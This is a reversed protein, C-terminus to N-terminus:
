HDTDHYPYDTNNMKRKMNVAAALMYCGFIAGYEFYLFWLNVMLYLGEKEANKHLSLPATITKYRGTIQVPEVVVMKM